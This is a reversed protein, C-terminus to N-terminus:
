RGPIAVADRDAVTSVPDPHRYEIAATTFGVVASQTGRALPDTWAWRWSPTM